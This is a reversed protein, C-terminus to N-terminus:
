VGVESGRGYLDGESVGLIFLFVGFGWRFGLRLGELELVTRLGGYNPLGDSFGVLYELSNYFIM